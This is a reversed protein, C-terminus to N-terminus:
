GIARTKATADFLPWGDIEEDRPQRSAWGRAQAVDLLARATGPEHLNM